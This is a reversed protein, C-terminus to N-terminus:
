EAGGFKKLAIFPLAALQFSQESENECGPFGKIRMDHIARGLANMVDIDSLVQEAMESIQKQSYTM